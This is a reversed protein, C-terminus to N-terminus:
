GCSSITLRQEFFYHLGQVEGSVVGEVTDGVGLGNPPLNLALTVSESSSTFEAYSSALTMGKSDNLILGAASITASSDATTVTCSLAIVDAGSNYCANWNRVHVLETGDHKQDNVAM